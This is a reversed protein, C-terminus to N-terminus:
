FLISALEGVEEMGIRAYARRAAVNYDNVYLSVVPAISARALAVVAAAGST